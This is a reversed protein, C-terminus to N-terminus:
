RAGRITRASSTPRASSPRPGAGGARGREVSSTTQSDILLGDRGLVIAADVGERQRLAGVLDRITAM